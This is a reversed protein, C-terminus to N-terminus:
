RRSLAAPRRQAIKSLDADLERLRAKYLGLGDEEAVVMTTIPDFSRATFFGTGRSWAAIACVITTTKGVGGDGQFLTLVGFPIRDPELWETRKVVISPDDAFILSLRPETNALERQVLAQADAGDRDRGFLEDATRGM